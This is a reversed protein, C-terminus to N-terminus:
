IFGAPATVGGFRVFKTLENSIIYTLKNEDAITGASVNVTINSASSGSSVSPMSSTPPLGSSANTSVGTSAVNSGPAGFNGPVTVAQGAPGTFTTYINFPNSKLWEQLAQYESKQKAIANSRAEEAAKIQALEEAAGKKQLDNLKNLAAEDDANSETKAAKMALLRAKEEENIKGKLAAEIAIFDQDFKAALKKSMALQRQNRLQDASLKTIKSAIKLEQVRAFMRKDESYREAGITYKGSQTMAGAAFPRFNGGFGSISAGFQAFNDAIRQLLSKSPLATQLGSGLLGVAEVAKGTASAFSLMSNTVEDIGGANEIFRDISKNLSNGIIEKAESAAVGLKAMRGGFTDAAQAAQGQFTKTLKATIQEFSSTKLEAKTLNIGLRGLSSNNGNYARGLAKVVSDLNQGTGASVDMALTLLRQSESVDKTITVLRQFAPRLQDESVGTAFQLRDIFELVRKDAAAIGLNKLTLSLSKVAKEEAMAAAISQKALIGLSATVGAASLKSALGFKKLTKSFSGIDKEASKIGKNNFTSIIPIKLVM